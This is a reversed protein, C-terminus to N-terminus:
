AEAGAMAEEEGLPRFVGPAVSEWVGRADLTTPSLAAHTDSQWRQWRRRRRELMMNSAFVILHKARNHPPPPDSACVHEEGRGLRIM